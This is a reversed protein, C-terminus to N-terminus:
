QDDHAHHAALVVLTYLFAAALGGFWWGARPRGATVATVAREKWLLTTLMLGLLIFHVSMWPHHGFYNRLGLVEVMAVLAPVLFLLGQGARWGNRRWFQWGLVLLVPLLGIFNTAVLRLCATQTSLGVGYGTNGWGYGGLMASFGGGSGGTKGLKSALSTLLVLGALGAALGAYILLRRWAVGPLLLLTMVLMGQVLITTWNVASYVLILLFLIVGQGWKFVPRTLLWIAAACFPFGFSVAALNPDLTTQWSVYGPTLVMVVALWFARETRGLLVWASGAVLAALLAYYVLFGPGDAGILHHCLYAAYLSAPRHGGYVEPHTEAEYGGANAVLQGHLNSFGFEEWNRVVNYAWGSGLGDDMWTTLWATGAVAVLLILIKKIQM